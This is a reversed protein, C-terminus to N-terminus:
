GHTTYLLYIWTRVCKYGGINAHRECKINLNRVLIFVYTSQGDM